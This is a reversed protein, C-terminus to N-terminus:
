RSTGMGVPEWKGRRYARLVWGTGSATAEISGTEALALPLTDSRACVDRIDLGGTEDDGYGGFAWAAPRCARVAEVARPAVPEGSPCFFIAARASATGAGEGYGVGPSAGGSPPAYAPPRLPDSARAARDLAATADSGELSAVLISHIGSDIRLVAGGSRGTEGPAPRPPHFWSITVGGPGEWVDGARGVSLRDPGATKMADLLCQSPSPSAPLFVRSAPVGSLVVAAGGARDPRDATLILASLRTIGRRRLMERIRRGDGRDGADVLVAGGGPAEILAASSSGLDLFTAKIADPPNRFLSGALLLLLSLCAASLAPVPRRAGGRADGLAAVAIWCAAYAILIIAPPPPVAICAGPLSAILRTSASLLELAAGLVSGAAGAAPSPLFLAAPLTAIGTILAITGAPIAVLNAPVAYPTFIGLHWATAPATGAWAALSVALAGALYRAAAEEWRAVSSAAPLPIAGRMLARASGDPRSPLCSQASLDAGPTKLCARLATVGESIAAAIGPALVVIALVAGFSMQFSATFMDAPDWALVAVGSFGLSNLMDPRRRLIMAGFYAAIMLTARVAPVCAGVILCYFVAAAVVIGAAKRRSVGLVSFVWWIMLMIIQVHLGSVALIHGVGSASFSERDLSAINGRHGLLMASILGAKEPPLIKQFLRVGAAQLRAPLFRLRVQGGAAKVEPSPGRCSIRIGRARLVEARDFTDPENSDAVPRLWGTFEVEDGPGMPAPAGEIRYWIKGSGSREGAPTVVALANLVCTADGHLGASRGAVVAIKTAGATTGGTGAAGGTGGAPTGAEEPHLLPAEEVIARIRFLGGKDPVMHLIHDPPLPSERASWRFAGFAACVALFAAARGAAPLLGACLLVGSASLIALFIASASAYSLGAVRSLRDRICM